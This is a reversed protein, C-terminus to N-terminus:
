CGCATRLAALPRRFVLYALPVRGGYIKATGKLGIRAPGADDLEGRVRYSAV